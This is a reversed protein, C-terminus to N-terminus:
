VALNKSQTAAADTNNTESNSNQVAEGAAVASDNVSKQEGIKRAIRLKSEIFAANEDQWEKSKLWVAVPDSFMECYEYSDEPNVGADLLMKLTQAKVQMGDSRNRTFKTDIDKLTLDDIEKAASQTDRCIKLVIKLYEYESAKFLKETSKARAEAAGWGDRLVVAQGTDGGGQSRNNRDPVGCIEYAANLLDEKTIQTQSQDLQSSIFKVDASKGERNPIEIADGVRPIFKEKTDLNTPLECNLFVLYSQVFQEIADIRNSDTANIANFLHVCLEVYGIRNENLRYEVIPIRGLTNAKEKEPKAKSFDFGIQTPESDLLWLFYETETYVGVAWQYKNGSVPNKSKQKVYTGAFLPEHGVENSYVVFTTRPDLSDTIYPADDETVANRPLCIRYANGSKYMWEVLALDKSEKGEIRAYTNLVDIPASENKGANTYQIPHSFEYGKKFEVIEFARNEVIKNNIEPRIQKTRGVIPQNGRYFWHLYDIEDANKLHLPMVDTLISAVTEKTLPAISGDRTRPPTATLVRRGYLNTRVEAPTDYDM